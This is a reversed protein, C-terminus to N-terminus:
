NGMPGLGMRLPHHLSSAHGFTLVSLVFGSLEVDVGWVCVCLGRVDNGTGEVWRMMIQHNQPGVLSMGAEPGEHESDGARPAGRGCM